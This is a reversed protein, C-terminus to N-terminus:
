FHKLIKLHPARDQTKMKNQAGCIVYSTQGWFNIGGSCRSLALNQPGLSAWSRSGSGLIYTIESIM